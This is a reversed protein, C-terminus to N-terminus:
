AVGTVTITVVVLAGGTEGTGEPTGKAAVPGASELAAAAAYEAAKRVARAVDVARHGEATVLQVQIRWRGSETEYRVWVGTATRPALRATGRVIDALGPRLFAVGATARAAEAVERTLLLAMDRRNVDSM